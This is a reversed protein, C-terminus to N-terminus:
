GNKRAGRQRQRKERAAQRANRKRDARDSADSNTTAGVPQQETASQIREALAHVTPYRFLDVPSISTDFRDCLQSHVQVMLLSKGGLEFFNDHIGVEELGLVNAWIQALETEVTNSPAVFAKDLQPRARQQSGSIVDLIQEPVLLESAIRTLTRNAKQTSLPASSGTSRAASADPAAPKAPQNEPAYAVKAAVDAPFQFIANDETDSQVSGGVTKLFDLAPQNKATPAYNVVVQALGKAQAIEGLKALMQYEVGRGLTRCSLMFSHVLLDTDTTNFLMTGVIGYDGFRDSVDVVLCEYGSQCLQQIDSESSRITTFNFQNTRQTLQSARPLTEDTMANISVTLNLGALFDGFTLTEQRFSERQVNQQYLATRKKDEATTNLHDFAWVHDLFTPIKEPATPLQLTLVEPCNAQVEACEVPNDDIFIFSNLGLNLEAALSKINESKAQWNIRSQVLHSKKLPMDTRQDFVAWVDAESNKSCLCLLMGADHQNVMLSQLTQYADGIRVGEAGEEGCVGQWLTNDCDLVIVKYPSSEIAYLTRSVATGLAAFFASTYPVKGFEDSNPDDYKSVAYTTTLLNSDLLHVGKMAELEAALQAEIRKYIAQRNPAAMARQSPPCICVVHPTTTNTTAASLASCFDQVNRELETSAPQSSSTEGSAAKSADTRTAYINYLGSSQLMDEEDFEWEFGRDTLIQQVEAIIDGVQDHVEVVMQQIMPWHEDKIGKLVPLESKEADLKLLDIREINCEEIISSLTRLEAQYTEKQLRDKLFEEALADMDEESMSGDRELMNLIVARIAKEDSEDDTSFSSFVSSNPYFTFTETTNAGSLGCNFLHANTCYLEANRQLKDFAHPAPEFSYVSGNPCQQQAFLTFLGINAGIDVVCDGDKLEIGRKLYVLDLFLEQYLYETEYQNLHAIELQNPLTYRLESGALIEAQKDADVQLPLPTIPSDWDELRALIVNVGDTNKGTLSEPNLLTQFVQNFPAFEGKYPLDLEKMWFNLSDEIPEATFTAAIALSKSSESPKLLVDETVQEVMVGTLEVLLNGAADFLKVDASISNETPAANDQLTAQVWINAPLPANVKLQEIGVPLYTKGATQPPLAAWLVQLATDLLIPHVQYSDLDAALSDSLQINGIATADGTWLQQVVQFTPGYDVGRAACSQYFDQTTTSVLSAVKAQWDSSPSETKASLEGDRSILRGAVHHSQETSQSEDVPNSLIQFSFGSQSAHTLEETDLHVSRLEDLFLARQIVLDQITLPGSSLKAKGAALAMEIFATAPFISKGYVRHDVLFPISSEQIHASFKSDTSVSDLKQPAGLLDFM